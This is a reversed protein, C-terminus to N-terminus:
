PYWSTPYVHTVKQSDNENQVREFKKDRYKIWKTNLTTEPTHCGQCWVVFKLSYLAPRKCAKTFLDQAQVAFSKAQQIQENQIVKCTYTHGGHLM